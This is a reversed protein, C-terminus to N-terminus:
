DLLAENAIVREQSSSLSDNSMVSWYRQGSAASDLALAECLPNNWTGVVFSVTVAATVWGQQFNQWMDSLPMGDCRGKTSHLCTISDPDSVKVSCSRTATFSMASQVRSLLILGTFPMLARRGGLISSPRNM